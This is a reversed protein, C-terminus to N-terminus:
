ERSDTYPEGIQLGAGRLEQIEGTQGKLLKLGQDRGELGSELRMHRHPAEIPFGLGSALKGHVLVTGQWCWGLFHNSAADPTSFANFVRGAQTIPGYIM